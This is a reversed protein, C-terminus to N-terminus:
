TYTSHFFFFVQILAPPHPLPSHLCPPQKQFLSVKLLSQLFFAASDRSSRPSPCMPPSLSVKSLGVAQQPVALAQTASCPVPAHTGVAPQLRHLVACGNQTQSGYTYLKTVQKWDIWCIILFDNNSASFLHTPSFPLYLPIFCLSQRPFISVRVPFCLTRRSNLATFLSSWKTFM